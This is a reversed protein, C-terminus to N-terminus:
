GKSMMSLYLESYRKFMKEYSFNERVFALANKRMSDKEDPSDVIRMLCKVLGDVDGSAFLLGNTGHKIIEANGGVDSAIVPVGLSMAELITMPIGESLSPLVFVNFKEYFPSPDIKEGEFTVDEDLELSAVKGKINLMEPGSGVIILKINLGKEKLVSMAEILITHNKIKSLRAVIGVIFENSQNNNLNNDYKIETINKCFNVGNMITILKSQSFGNSLLEKELYEAVLVIKNTIIALYRWLRYDTLMTRDGGGYGHVTVICKPRNIATFFCALAGYFWPSEGHTHIIDFREKRFLNVLKFILRWDKGPRRPVTIVRVGKNAIQKGLVGVTDLCCVSQDFKERDKEVLSTVVKEAGGVNLSLVLHLIKIKM